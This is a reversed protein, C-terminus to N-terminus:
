EEQFTLRCSSSKDMNIEMPLDMALRMQFTAEQALAPYMAHMLLLFLFAESAKIMAKMM